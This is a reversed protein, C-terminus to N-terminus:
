GARHIALLQELPLGAIVRAEHLASAMVSDGGSCESQFQHQAMAVPSVDLGFRRELGPALDVLKEHIAPVHQPERTVALVDLDSGPHDSARAASGFVALTRLHGDALEQEFADRLTSFVQTVRAQEAHFLPVLGDPVLSNDRNIRYLHQSPLATRHLVGLAVLDALARLAPASPIGALRAAERASVGDQLPLLARLLRVKSRSSLVADLPQLLMGMFGLSRLTILIPIAHDSKLDHSRM